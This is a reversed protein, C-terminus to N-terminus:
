GFIGGRRGAGVISEAVQDEISKPQEKPKAGAPASLGQKARITNIAEERGQAKAKQYMKSGSDGFLERAAMDLIRKPPNHVLNPNGMEQAIENVKQSFQAYGEQTRLESYTKALGGMNKAFTQSAQNEYIPMILQAVEDQYQRVKQGAMADVVRFLANVPDNQFEQWFQNNLAEQNVQQGQGQQQPPQQQRKMQALEQSKRTFERRLENYGNVYDFEPEEGQEEQSPAQEEEAAADAGSEEQSTEQAQEQMEQGAEAGQEEQGTIDPSEDPTTSPEFISM